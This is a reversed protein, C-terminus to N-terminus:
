KEITYYQFDKKFVPDKTTKAFKRIADDVDKPKLEVYAAINKLSTARVEPTWVYPNPDSRLADTNIARTLSVVVKENTLALTQAPESLVVEILFQKSVIARGLFPVFMKLRPSPAAVLVLLIEDGPQVEQALVLQTKGAIDTPPSTSSSTKASLRVGPLPVSRYDSVQLNLVTGASASAGGALAACVVLRELFDMNPIRPLIAASLLRHLVPLTITCSKACPMRTYTDTQAASWWLVHIM